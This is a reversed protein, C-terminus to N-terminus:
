SKKCLRTYLIPAPVPKVKANTNIAPNLSRRLKESKGRILWPAAMLRISAPSSDSENMPKAPNPPPHATKYIHDASRRLGKLEAEEALQECGLFRTLM